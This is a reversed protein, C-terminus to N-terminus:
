ERGKSKCNVKLEEVSINEGPSKEFYYVGSLEFAADEDICFQNLCMKGSKLSIMHPDESPEMFVVLNQMNKPRKEMIQYPEFNIAQCLYQLENYNLISYTEVMVRNLVRENSPFNQDKNCKTM